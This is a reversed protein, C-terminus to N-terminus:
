LPPSLSFSTTLTHTRAYRTDNYYKMMAIDTANVLRSQERSEGSRARSLEAMARNIIPRRGRACNRVTNCFADFSRASIIYYVRASVNASVVANTRLRSNLPGNTYRKLVGGNPYKRRKMPCENTEVTKDHRTLLRTLATRFFFRSAIMIESNYDFYSDRTWKSKDRM